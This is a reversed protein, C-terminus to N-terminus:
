GTFTDLVSLKITSRCTSPRSRKPRAIAFLTKRDDVRVVCSSDIFFVLFVFDRVRELKCKGGITLNLSYEYFFGDATAVYLQIVPSDSDKPGHIACQNPVGTSCLRAQSVVLLHGDSLCM